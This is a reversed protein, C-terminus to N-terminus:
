AGAARSGRCGIAPPVPSSGAVQPKPSRQEVLQAVWRRNAWGSEREAQRRPGASLWWRQLCREGILHWLRPSEALNCGKRVGGRTMGQMM